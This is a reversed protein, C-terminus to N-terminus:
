ISMVWDDSHSVAELARCVLVGWVVIARPYGVEMLEDTYPARPGTADGTIMGFRSVAGQM